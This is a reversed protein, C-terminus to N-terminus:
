WIKISAVTLPGANGDDVLQRGNADKHGRQFAKIAEQTIPGIHGDVGAKGISYGLRVLEWQLWKVDNGSSDLKLVRTPESYPNTSYRAAYAEPDIYSCSRLSAWTINNIQSSSLKSLDRIGLHLHIGTAVGTKGTYGILTGRSVKKKSTISYRDLHYHLFAKKIRPYIVWIYIAGDKTSKGTEFVYGSEIAYQPLKVGKTSYDTGQHNSLKGNLTRIGFPSTMYHTANEFILNSIKSM